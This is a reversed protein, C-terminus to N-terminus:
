ALLVLRRPNTNFVSIIENYDLSETLEREFSLLSLSNLRYTMMSVRIGTKIQSVTSFPREVTCITVPLTVPARLLRNVKPFIDGPYTDLVEVLSPFTREATAKRKLQQVFLEHEAGEVIIFFHASAPQISSKDGFNNSCLLCAAARMLGCTDAKFRTNLEMIQRDLMGNWIKKLGSNDKGPSTKRTNCEVQTNGLKAPLKRKRSGTVDWSVINTM